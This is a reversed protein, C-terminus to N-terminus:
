WFTKLVCFTLPIEGYMFLGFYELTNRHIHEWALFDSLEPQAILMMLWPDYSPMEIVPM